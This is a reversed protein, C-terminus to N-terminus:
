EKAGTFLRIFYRILRVPHTKEGESSRKRQFPEPAARETLKCAGKRKRQGCANRRWGIKHLVPHAEIRRVAFNKARRFLRIYFCLWESVCPFTDMSSTDNRASRLLRGDNGHFRSDLPRM